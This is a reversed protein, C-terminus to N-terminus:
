ILVPLLSILIIIEMVRFTSSSSTNYIHQIANCDHTCIHAIVKSDLLCQNHDYTFRHLVHEQALGEVECKAADCSGSLGTHRIVCEQAIRNQTHKVAINEPTPQAHFTLSIAM